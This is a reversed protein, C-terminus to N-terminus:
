SKTGICKIHNVLTDLRSEQYLGMNKLILENVYNSFIYFQQSSLISSSTGPKLSVLGMMQSFTVFKLKNGERDFM